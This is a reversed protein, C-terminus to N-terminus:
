EVRLLREEGRHHVTCLDGRCTAATVDISLVGEGAEGLVVDVEAPLLALAWSRPGPGLLTGPDASVSVRVPPGQTPDVDEGDTDLALTVHVTEGARGVLPEQRLDVLRLQEVVGTRRDVFVVRHANTDAVVLREDPLVDVGGPEDLPESLALTSLTGDRWIRLLSNFTDAVVIAGGPLAVVGLPHQMRATERDGDASGWEFLGAGVLTSVRGERLV